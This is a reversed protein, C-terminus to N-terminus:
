SQAAAWEGGGAAPEVWQVLEIVVGNPDTIQFLREGWEEERLGMTIQVGESTLRALEADLDDVVLAVIVGAAHQDRFGEPLVEIGRRLFIVDMAADDRSLSAFGDAAMQERFGLHAILFASSAPVDEVTLSV